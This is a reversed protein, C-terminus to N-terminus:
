GLPNEGFRAWLKPYRRALHEDDEEFPEGSPDPPYSNAADFPMEQFDRGTKESWVEGAVYSFEEFEPPGEAEAGLLEALREPDRLAAEFLARGRSILWHRFYDFGDDSAGGQILYAAGWLDWSYSRKMERAFAMAFAAIEEPTLASLLGRLSEIQADPDAQHRTTEAILDWFRDAPMTEM